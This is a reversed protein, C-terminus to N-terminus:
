RWEEEEGYESPPEGHEAIVTAKKVTDDPPEVKELKVSFQWRTGFDYTFSMSDGVLIPLSGIPVDDTAIEPDGEPRSGIKWGAPGFWVRGTPQM